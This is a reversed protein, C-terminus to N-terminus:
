FPVDRLVVGATAHAHERIANRGHPLGPLRLTRVRILPASQGPLLDGAEPMQLVDPPGRVADAHPATPLHGRGPVAKSIGQYESRQPGDFEGKHGSLRLM